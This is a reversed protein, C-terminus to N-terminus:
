GLEQPFGLQALPVPSALGDMRSGEEDWARLKQLVVHRCTVLCRPLICTRTRYTQASGSFRLDFLRQEQDAVVGLLSANAFEAQASHCAPRGGGPGVLLVTVALCNEEQRDGGESVPKGGRERGVGDKATGPLGLLNATVHEPGRGRPWWTDALKRSVQELLGPGGCSCSWTRSCPLQAAPGSSRGPLCPRTTSLYTHTAPTLRSPVRACAQLHIHSDTDYPPRLSSGM